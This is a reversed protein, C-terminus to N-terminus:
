SCWGGVLGIGSMASLANYMMAAVCSVLFMTAGCVALNEGSRLGHRISLLLPLILAVGVLASDDDDMFMFPDSILVVAAYAVLGWYLLLAPRRNRSRVGGLFLIFIAIIATFPWLTLPFVSLAIWGWGIGVLVATVQVACSFYVQRPRPCVAM